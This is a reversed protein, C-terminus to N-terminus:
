GVDVFKLARPFGKPAPKGIGARKGLWDRWESLLRTRGAGDTWALGVARDFVIADSLRADKLNILKVGKGKAMRPLDGSAFALLRRDSAVVAAMDGMAPACAIAKEGPNLALLAKGARRTSSFESEAALFGYGDASAVFREAGDEALFLALIATDDDLDIALKIPEGFGRGQPAKAAALSFARGDDAFISVVDTTHCALLHGLRDGDKFKLTTPDDIKGKVARIWGKQSLIITIPEREIFAEIPAPASTAAVAAFQTRRRGMPTEPGYIKRIARLDASIQDWQRAPEAILRALADREEQLAKEEGRIDVEELKRLNRLRMNLIAEAQTESLAFRAILVSKPEDERRIIAIVEDINLYAILLGALIELRAEIKGLRFRARRVLVVRRHDLFARLLEALNMVRPVNAADLVNMNIALRSELASQRFLSEMIHAPEVSRNKPELVIRLDDASEDRVDGLLPAKKNELLDALDEILKAKQVLYPIETVVIRWQGRAREEIEWKARVRLAGRGTEYVQAITETEDVIVGGTPLDPGKVFGLLARSDANPAIILHLCADILEALNHPPINTAMGVAIGAAGNALLNPFAAPLVVPEQDSGDYTDRFDVADENLGDLLAAAAATLRSETYRMAAPNDGDVTGFNGQGDVLPYRITFDQALRALADYIAQDGHPHFRGMVDGVVRACKKFAAEPNLGLDRMGYLIRRHVPKLGDRADPLARATITSLAYALYRSSLAQSLSEDVIVDDAPPLDTM